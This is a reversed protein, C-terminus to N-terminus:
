GNIGGRAAQARRVAADIAALSSTHVRIPAHGLKRFAAQADQWARQQRALEAKAEALREDITKM